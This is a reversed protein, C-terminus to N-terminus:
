LLTMQPDRNELPDLGLMAELNERNLLPDEALRRVHRFKILRWGSQLAMSLRPDRRLKYQVLNARGGPLVVALRTPADSDAKTEARSLIAQALMASATVYFHYNPVQRAALWYVWGPADDTKKAQVEFGLREGIAILLTKIQALDARRAAPSDELRLRWQNSDPATQEGYSILCEQVFERPPTLLEPFARCIAQDIHEFSSGPTKQLLRVVEMEIRDALPQAITSSNEKRASLDLWWLGVDLSRPSGGFRVFKGPALLATELIPHIAELMHDATTTPDPILLHAKALSSLVAAHLDLYPAPEGRQRLYEVIAQEVFRVRDSVNALLTFRTAATSSARQWLVQALGDAPRMALGALDFGALEAAVLAASLFGPEIEGIMGLFPAGAPLIAALHYLTAHLAETHWDWDYRRRRLVSKFPASAAHGWLWGSWLACLTWFAQNPRPLAALVAEVAPFATPESRRTQEALAKLRGEFLCVGGEAPPMEPWITVPLSSLETGQRPLNATWQTVADELALWVNRELFRSSINLQKPRARSSSPSWLINTQDFAALLLATLGRRRAAPLGELKNVLTFLAYVTRPLYVALAEEVFVRDPDDLPAVRELARARHLESGSFRAAREVDAATAPHEGSEKCIPCTYISAVPVMPQREWIFAQAEVESGCNECHTLYLSRLHPELREGAKQSAALDALVARLEAETLPDAYLELLFRAIPNNVAALLRYGARAAEIAQRPSAGFPDLVWAGVPVHEQLWVAAVGDPMPPLFRGLPAGQGTYQGPIFAVAGTSGNM